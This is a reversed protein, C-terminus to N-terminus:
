DATYTYISSDGDIVYFMVRQGGDKHEAAQHHGTRGAVDFRVPNHAPMLGADTIAKQLRAAPNFHIGYGVQQQIGARWMDHLNHDQFPSTVPPPIPTPTYRPPLKVGGKYEAVYQDLLSNSGNFVNVDVDPIPSYGYGSHPVSFQWFLWDKWPHPVYPNRQGQVVGYHHSDSYYNALWLGYERVWGKDGVLNKWFHPNTYILPTVGTESFFAECYLKVTRVSKVSDYDVGRIVVAEVDVVHPMDHDMYFLDGAVRAQREPDTERLLHYSTTYIGSKRAGDIHDHYMDDIIINRANQRVLGDSSRIFAFRVGAEYMRGWNLPTDQAYSVDVGLSRRQSGTGGGM